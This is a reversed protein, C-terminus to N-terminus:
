LALIFRDEDEDFIDAEVVEKIVIGNTKCEALLEETTQVERFPQIYDGEGDEWLLWDAIKNGISNIM